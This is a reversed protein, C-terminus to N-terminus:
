FGSTLTRYNALLFSAFHSGWLCFCTEQRLEQADTFARGMHPLVSQAEFATKNPNKKPLLGQFVFDRPYSFKKCLMKKPYCFILELQRAADPKYMGSRPLMQVQHIVAHKWGQSSRFVNAKDKNLVALGRLCGSRKGYITAQCSPFPPKLCTNFSALKSSIHLCSQPFICSQLPPPLNLACPSVSFVCKSQCQTAPDFVWTLDKIM